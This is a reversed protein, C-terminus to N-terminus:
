VGCLRRICLRKHQSPNLHRTVSSLATQLLLSAVCQYDARNSKLIGGAGQTQKCRQGIQWVKAAFFYHLCRHVVHEVLLPHAVVEVVAPFLGNKQVKVSLNWATSNKNWPRSGNKGAQSDKACAMLCVFVILKNVLVCVIIIFNVSILVSLLPASRRSSSETNQPLRMEDLRESALMSPM